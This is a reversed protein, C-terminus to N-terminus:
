SQTLQEQDSALEPGTSAGGGEPGASFEFPEVCICEGAVTQKKGVQLIREVSQHHEMVVFAIRSPRLRMRPTPSTRRCNGKAKIPAVLVRSVRGYSSYHSRLLVESESPLKNVQRALFVSRPDQAGTSVDRRLALLLHGMTLSQQGDLPEDPEDAWRAARGREIQADREPCGAAAAVGAGGLGGRSPTRPSPTRPTRPSEGRMELDPASSSRLFVHPHGSPDDSDSLEIPEDFEIFTNKVRTPLM